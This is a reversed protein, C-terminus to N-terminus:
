GWVGDRVLEERRRLVARGGHVEGGGLTTAMLTAAALTLTSSAVARGCRLGFTPQSVHALRARM